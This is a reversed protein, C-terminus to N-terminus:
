MKSLFLKMKSITMSLVLSFFNIITIYFLYIFAHIYHLLNVFTVDDPSIEAKGLLSLCVEYGLGPNAGDDQFLGGRGTGEMDTYMLFSHVGISFVFRVILAILFIKLYLKRKTDDKIINFLFIVPILFLAFWIAGPYIVSVVGVIIGLFIFKSRLLTSIM